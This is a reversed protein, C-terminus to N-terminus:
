NTLTAVCLSINRAFLFQASGLM